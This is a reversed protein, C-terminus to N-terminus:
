SRPPSKPRPANAMAELARRAIDREVERAIRDALERRLRRRAQWWSLAVGGVFALVTLTIALAM